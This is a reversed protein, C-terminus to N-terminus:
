EVPLAYVYRQTEQGLNWGNILEYAELIPLGRSPAHSCGIKAYASSDFSVREVEGTVIIRRLYERKFM